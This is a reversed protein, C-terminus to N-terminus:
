RGQVGPVHGRARNAHNGRIHWQKRTKIKNREVGESSGDDANTIAVIGNDDTQATGEKTM